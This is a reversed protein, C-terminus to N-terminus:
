TAAFRKAIWRSPLPLSACILALGWCGVGACLAGNLLPITRIGAFVAGRTEAGTATAGASRLPASKRFLWLPPALAVLWGLHWPLVGSLPLVFPGFSAFILRWLRRVAGVGGSVELQALSTLMTVFIITGGATLLLAGWRIGQLQSLSGSLAVSIGLCLNFGRCLGMAAAGLLGEKLLANYLYTAGITGSVALTLPSVVGRAAVALSLATLQASLCLSWAGMLSVRGSPLPREPREDADLERDFIDNSIMGAAYCFISLAAALLGGDVSPTMAGEFLFAALALGALSDAPASMLAPPRILELHASLKSM